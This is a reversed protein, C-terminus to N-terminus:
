PPYPYGMLVWEAMAQPDELRICGHSFDRRTRAFLQTAPTGHFYIAEASPFMFKIALLFIWTAVFNFPEESARNTLTPWHM